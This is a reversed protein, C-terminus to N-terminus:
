VMDKGYPRVQTDARTADDTPAPSAGGTEDAHAAMCKRERAQDEALGDDYRECDGGADAGTLTLDTVDAERRTYDLFGSRPKCAHFFYGVGINLCM